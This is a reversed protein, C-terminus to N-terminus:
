DTVGDRLAPNQDTKPLNGGENQVVGFNTNIEGQPFRMLLWPDDAAMNFRFAAPYNTSAADHFRVLPKNLRKIDLIGFGEGWLEVRRQFWIEDALTRGGDTASYSPDRYTKVFNELFTKADDEQGSKALGEAKILYMEEVRMLPFDDENTTTGIPDTLFKVNTYPSFALKVGDIELNGIDGKGDWTLGKLLPSQLEADVWWGKRVDSAPIKDWLLKNITVYTGAGAAYGNASFSSLWADPGGVLYRKANDSTNDYGWMWNHESIKNFSIPHQNGAVSSLDDITAPTLGAASALQIAADADSAAAAWEGMDLEARARLGYAVMQDINGKSERSYGKLNEVAFNLDDMIISYIEGVTARPNNTFDAVSPSSIPICPDDKHNQYNFQFNPALLLYSYARLARAQAIQWIGDQSTSDASAIFDNISGIENYPAQYRIYPNRYNANRSFYEGCVSFWNYGSDPGEADAGELDNCFLISLFEWDDPTDYLKALQGLNTYLASFAAETREPQAAYTEQVQSLLLSGGQPEQEDINDCGALLTAAVASAALFIKNIKM